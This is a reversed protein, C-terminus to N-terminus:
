TGYQVIPKAGTNNVDLTPSTALNANDFKVHITTGPNLTFGPLSV